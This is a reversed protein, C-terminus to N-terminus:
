KRYTTVKYQGIKPHFPRTGITDTHGPLVILKEHRHVISGTTSDMETTSIQYTCPSIKTVKQTPTVSVSELQKEEHIWM